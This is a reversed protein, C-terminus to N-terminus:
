FVEGSGGDVCLRSTLLLKPHFMKVGRSLKKTFERQKKGGCRGDYREM